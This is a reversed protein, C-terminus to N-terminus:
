PAGARGCRITPRDAPREVVETGRLIPVNWYQFRPADFAGRGKPSGKVRDMDNSYPIGFYEDFGHRTPLYPELHGLHWKGFAGTKYGAESLYESLMKVDRKIGRYGQSGLPQKGPGRWM